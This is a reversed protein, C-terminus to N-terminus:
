CLVDAQGRILHAERGTGPHDALSQDPERTTTARMYFELDLGLGLPGGAPLLLRIGQGVRCSRGPQVDALVPQSASDRPVDAERCPVGVGVM